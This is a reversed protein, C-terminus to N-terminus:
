TTVATSFTTPTYIKYCSKAAHPYKGVKEAALQKLCKATLFPTPITGYIVTILKYHRVVKEYHQMHKKNKNAKVFM